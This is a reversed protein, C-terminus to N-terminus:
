KWDAMNIVVPKFLNNETDSNLDVAQLRNLLYPLSYNIFKLKESNTLKDIEIQELAEFTLVELFDKLEKNIKAKGRKSKSGFNNGQKFAM